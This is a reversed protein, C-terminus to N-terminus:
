DAIDLVVRKGHRVSAANVLSRMARITRGQKGIVKGKDSPAVRLEFVRTKDGRVENVRVAGSDEVLNRAMYAILAKM